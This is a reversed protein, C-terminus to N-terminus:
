GNPAGYRLGDLTMDLVREVQSPSAGPLKGIASVGMIVDDFSVDSRAAGASQARELLPEGAAILAGRCGTFLGSDRDLYELLQDALARKTRLYAVLDHLWATLAQWPPAGRVTRRSQLDGGARRPLGGRAPGPPLPFAPLAHRDRGRRAARGGRPVDRRRGRRISRACRWGPARLQAACRGADSSPAHASDPNRISDNSKVFRLTAGYLEPPLRRKKTSTAEM